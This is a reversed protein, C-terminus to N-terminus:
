AGVLALLEDRSPGPLREDRWGAGLTIVKEFLAPDSLVEPGTRFVSAVEMFARLLEPDKGTGNALAKTIEYEPSPVFERGDIEADVEDLRGRDFALTTRYWPEVTAMTAEHWATAFEVPDSPAARLLDRLALGHMTGITIGRGVSPNTCAWSDALAAVGTAVPVGDVVFTRIRDEIKAMVNVTDDLPQGDVWHAIMPYSTVVKTWTDVDKLARMATDRASAVLGVGWTGNDAPLTLSSLSGETILLPGIAPPLSGDGSTFHRGYYVFGCDDVEEAPARAGIDTLM